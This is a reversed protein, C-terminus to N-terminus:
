AKTLSTQHKKLRDKWLIICIKTWGVKFVQIILVILLLALIGLVCSMKERLVSANFTEKTMFNLFQDGLTTFYDQTLPPTAAWNRPVMPPMLVEGLTKFNPPETNSALVLIAVALLLQFYKYTM